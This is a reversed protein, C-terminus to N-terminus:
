ESCERRAVPAYGAIHGAVLWATAASTSSVQGAPADNTVGSRPALRRPVQCASRRRKSGYSEPRSKMRGVDCGSVGKVCGLKQRISRVNGSWSRPREIRLCKSQWSFLCRGSVLLTSVSCVSCRGIWSHQWPEVWRSGWLIATGSGRRGSRGTQQCGCRGFPRM